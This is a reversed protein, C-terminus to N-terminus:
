SAALNRYVAAPSKHTRLLADLMGEPLTTLAKRTEQRAVFGGLELAARRPFVDRRPHKLSVASRPKSFSTVPHQFV